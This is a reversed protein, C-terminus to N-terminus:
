EPSLIEIGVLGRVDGYVQAGQEFNLGKGTANDKMIVKVLLPAEGLPTEYITATGTHVLIDCYVIGTLPDAGNKTETPDIVQCGAGDSFADQKSPGSGDARGIDMWTTLGALKVLIAIGIGGAEAGGTWQIDSLQLGHIRLKFFSSGIAEPLRKTPDTHSSKSLDFARIYLRDGTLGSYDPNTGTIDGDANSPRYGNSYDHQPYLLIGCNPENTSGEVFDPDRYPLGAVQAELTAHTGLPVSQKNQASWSAANWNAYQSINVPVDLAGVTPLGPGVLRAIEDATQTVLPFDSIWRFKEDYFREHFPEDVYFSFSTNAVTLDGGFVMIKKGVAENAENTQTYNKYQQWLWDDHYVVDRFVGVLRADTSFSIGNQFTTPEFVITSPSNYQSMNVQPGNTLSPTSGNATDTILHYGVELRNTYNAGHDATISSAKLVRSFNGTWLMFPCPMEFGANQTNSPLTHGTRYVRHVNTFNFEVSDLGLPTPDTPNPIFYHVGSVTTTTDITRTLTYFGQLMMATPTGSVIRSRLIHYSDSHRISSITPPINHNPHFATPKNDLVYINDTSEIDNWNALNSSYLKDDTPAIKDIMLEEFYEEKKFHLLFVSGYDDNSSTLHNNPIMFRHRFRAVQFTWYDKSFGNYNGAKELFYVPPSGLESALAPKKFYRFSEKKPTWKLGEGWTHKDAQKDINTYGYGVDTMESASYTYDELYPLRYRFFNAEDRTDDGKSPAVSVDTGGLITYGERVQGATNDANSPDFDSPELAQGVMGTNGVGTNTGSITYIATPLGSLDADLITHKGNIDPVANSGFVYLEEGTTLYNTASNTPSVLTVTIDTQTAPNTANPQVSSITGRSDRVYGTHLEKLDFQGSAAAPYTYPDNNAGYSWIAGTEGDCGDEIGQGCNLAALCIIDNITGEAPIRFLGITGRDAPFLSGSVIVSRDQNGSVRRYFNFTELVYAGNPVTVNRSFGAALTRGHGGGTSNTDDANFMPDSIFDLGATYQIDTGADILNIWSYRGTETSTSLDDSQPADHFYPFNGSRPNVPPITATSPNNADHKKPYQIITNNLVGKPFGLHDDNLKLVGWDPIGTFEMYHKYKGLTPPRPPILGGLEDLADDVNDAFYVPENEYSIASADHADVPDKIHAELGVGVAMNPDTDPFANAEVSDNGALGTGTKIKNKPDIKRPM